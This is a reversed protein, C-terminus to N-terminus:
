IGDTNWMDTISVDADSLLWYDADNQSFRFAGEPEFFDELLFYGFILRKLSVSSISKTPVFDPAHPLNFNSGSM